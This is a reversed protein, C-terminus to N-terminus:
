GIGACGLRGRAAPGSLSFSSLALGSNNTACGYRSTVTDSGHFMDGRRLDLLRALRDIGAELTRPHDHGAAAGADAGAQHFGEGALPRLHIEHVYQLLFTGLQHRPKTIRRDWWTEM